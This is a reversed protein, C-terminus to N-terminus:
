VHARGIKNALETAGVVGADINWITGSGSVTIDGKDGDSVGGGTGNSAATVRGKADVTIDANTYSGPTVATNALTTANSGASATVDGTLAARRLLPTADVYELTSDVMAGVADQAQEDTYFGAITPVTPMRRESVATIAGSLTTVVAMPLKTATFGSTNTSVVGAVTREVYNTANDSLAVTGNAASDWAAGDWATGGFYAYTLGSFAAPRPGWQEDVMKRLRDFNNNGDDLWDAGRAIDSVIGKETTTM